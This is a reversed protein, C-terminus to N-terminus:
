VFLLDDHSCDEKVCVAHCLKAPYLDEQLLLSSRRWSDRQKHRGADPVNYSTAITQRQPSERRGSGRRRSASQDRQYHNWLRHIVSRHVNLERAVASQRASAQLMDVARWRMEGHLHNRRSMSEVKAIESEASSDSSAFQLMPGALAKKLSQPTVEPNRKEGYVTSEGYTQSLM